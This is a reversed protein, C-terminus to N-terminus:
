MERGKLSAEIPLFSQNKGYYNGSLVNLFVKKLRADRETM